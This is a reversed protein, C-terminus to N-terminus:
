RGCSTMYKLRLDENERINASYIESSLNILLSLALYRLCGRPVRLFAVCPRILHNITQGKVDAAAAAADVADDNIFLHISSFVEVGSYKFIKIHRYLGATQWKIIMKCHVFPHFSYTSQMM